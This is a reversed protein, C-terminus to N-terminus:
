DKKKLDAKYKELETDEFDEHQIRAVMRNNEDGMTLIIRGEFLRDGEGGSTGKIRLTLSSDEQRGRKELTLKFRYPAGYHLVHDGDSERTLDVTVSETRTLGEWTGSFDAEKITKSVSPDEGNCGCISPGLVAFLVLTQLLINHIPIRRKIQSM